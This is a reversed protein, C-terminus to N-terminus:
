NYKSSYVKCDKSSVPLYFRTKNKVIKLINNKQKCCSLGYNIDKYKGSFWQYFINIDLTNKNM